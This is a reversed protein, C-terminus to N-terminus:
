NNLKILVLISNNTVNEIFYIHIDSNNENYANSIVLILSLRDRVCIVFLKIIISYLVISM